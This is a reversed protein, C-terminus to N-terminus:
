PLGLWSSPMVNLLVLVTVVGLLYAIGITAAQDIRQKM